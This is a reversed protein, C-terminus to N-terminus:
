IDWEQDARAQTSDWEFPEITVRFHHLEDEETDWVVYNDGEFTVEFRRSEPMNFVNHFLAYDLWGLAEEQSM